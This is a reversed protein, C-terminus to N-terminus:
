INNDISKKIVKWKATKAHGARCFVYENLIFDKMGLLFRGLTKVSQTAKENFAEIVLQKIQQDNILFNVNNNLTLNGNIIEFLERTSFSNEGFTQYLIKFLEAKAQAEDDLFKNSEFVSLLDLGTLELLPMRVFNDWNKFRSSTEPSITINKGLSVLSLIASIIKKRNDVAWKGVDGRHFKQNEPNELNPVIRIPLIRTAFDGKFVINNGTFLWLVSSPVEETENVGLKRRSYTASTMAKALENSKISADKKINDFLVCSHGERLIALLHKGLEDDNDSWGTAAVPRNFISYNLLQALTTKGSSPKPSVIAYGPMGNDGVICPRQIATMFMSIACIKDLETQFPFEAFVEECLYKLAKKPEILKVKLKKHLVCYLGTSNDYGGNENLIYDYNYYPHEVIGSLPKWDINYMKPITNLISDPCLIEKGTQNLFICDQEVRSRIVGTPATMDKIIPMPPYDENLISKQTIQQVTKPITYEIISLTNGMKYIEPTKKSKSLIDCITKTVNGHNSNTIEIEYIKQCEREKSKKNRVELEKKLLNECKYNKVDETIARVGINLSEDIKRILMKLKAGDFTHIKEAFNLTIEKKNASELWNLITDFDPKNMFAIATDVSREIDDFRVSWASIREQDSLSEKANLML